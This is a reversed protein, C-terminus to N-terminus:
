DPRFRDAFSIPIVFLWVCGAVVIAIAAIGLFIKLQM